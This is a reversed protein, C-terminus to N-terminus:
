NYATVGWYKVILSLANSYFFDSSLLKLYLASTMYLDVVCGLIFFLIMKKKYPYMIKFWLFVCIIRCLLFFREGIVPMIRIFNAMTLFVCFFQLLLHLSSNKKYIEIHKMMMVTALIVIVAQIMIFFSRVGNAYMGWNENVGESTYSEFKDALSLPITNISVFNNYIADIPIVAFPISIFLMWKQLKSHDKLLIYVLLIALFFWYSYHIYPLLFFCFIYKWKHEYFVKLVCFVCIWLATCYRFNQINIISCPLIFLFVIAYGSINTKFNKDGTVYKLSNLMCYLVPIGAIVYMLHFNASFLKTLWYVFTIYFDPREANFSLTLVAWLEDLLQSSTFQANYFREVIAVFDIYSDGRPSYYISWCLLLGFLFYVYYSSKSAPRHLLSYLFAGFPWIIFFVLKIGVESIKGDRNNM